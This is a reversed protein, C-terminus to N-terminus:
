PARSLRPLMRLDHDDSGLQLDLQDLHRKMHGQGQVAGQGKEDATIIDVMGALTEGSAEKRYLLYTDHSSGISDNHEV